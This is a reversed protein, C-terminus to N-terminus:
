MNILNNPTTVWLEMLELFKNRQEPLTMTISDFLRSKLFEVKKTDYSIKIFMDSRSTLLGKQLSSSNATFWVIVIDHQPLDTITINALWM